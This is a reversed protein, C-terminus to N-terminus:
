LGSLLVKSLILSEWYFHESLFHVKNNVLDDIFVQYSAPAEEISSGNKRNHFVRFVVTSDITPPDDSIEIPRLASWDDDLGLNSNHDLRVVDLKDGLKIIFIFKAFSDFSTFGLGRYNIENRKKFV